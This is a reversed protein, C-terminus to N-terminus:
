AIHQNITQFSNFKLGGRYSRSRFRDRQDVQFTEILIAELITRNPPMPSMSVM